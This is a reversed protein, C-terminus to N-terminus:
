GGCSVVWWKGDRGLVATTEHREAPSGASASWCHATLPLSSSTSSSLVAAAAKADIRAAEDGAQERYRALDLLVTARLWPLQGTDLRDVTAELTAIAGVLDGSAAQM